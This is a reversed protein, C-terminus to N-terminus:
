AVESSRRAFVVYELGPRDPAERVDVILLGALRLSAELEEITRFALTSRSSLTFGSELYTGTWEFTVLRDDAELFEVWTELPGLDTEVIQYTDERDWDRWPEVDPRRCEFVLTGGDALSREISALAAEFGEDTLFVQATNGTMLAVDVDRVTISAADAVSWEVQDAFEKALAVELMVPSPDVGIVRFGEEALRCALTGTGCGVDLVRTAKLERVIDVYHELDDRDGEIDDYIAVMRPDEFWEDAM